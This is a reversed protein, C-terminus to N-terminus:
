APVTQKEKSQQGSFVRKTLAICPVDVWREFLAAVVLSLGIGIAAMILFDTGYGFSALSSFILCSITFLIPFHTLYLSFSLRGLKLFVPASLAKAITASMLIGTFIFISGLENLWENYLTPGQSIANQTNYIPKLLDFDHADILALGLLLSLIGIIEMGRLPHAQLYAHLDYLLYGILFLSFGSTGTLLFLGAVAIIFLPKPLHRRLWAVFLLLMSGWLIIHMTWFPGNISQAWTTLYSHMFDFSAFWSKEGYGLVMSNLFLDKTLASFTMPNNASGALWGSQAIANAQEKAHPFCLFLAVSFFFAVALSMWLRFLRRVAQMAWGHTIRAFSPALVFGSMLFFLNFAAFGNYLIFLPSNSVAHEWGYRLVGDFRAMPPFFASIYHLIVVQMAGLGKLGEIFDFRNSPKATTPQM